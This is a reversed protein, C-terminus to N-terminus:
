YVETFCFTKHKLSWMFTLIYINLACLYITYITVYNFMDFLFGGCEGRHYRSTGGLLSGM